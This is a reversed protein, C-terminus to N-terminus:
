VTMPGYMDRAMAAIWLWSVLPLVILLVVVPARDYRLACELITPPRDDQTTIDVM